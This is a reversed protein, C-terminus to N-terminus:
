LFIVVMQVEHRIRDNKQSENLGIWTELIKKTHLLM